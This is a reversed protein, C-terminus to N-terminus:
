RWIRYLSNPLPKCKTRREDRQGAGARERKTKLKSLIDLTHPVNPPWSIRSFHVRLQKPSNKRRTKFLCISLFSSHVLVLCFCYNILARLTHAYHTCSEWAAHSQTDMPLSPLPWPCRRMWLLRVCNEVSAFITQEVCLCRGFAGVSLTVVWQWYDATSSGHSRMLNSMIEGSENEKTTQRVSPMDNM